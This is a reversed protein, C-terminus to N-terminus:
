TVYPRLNYFLCVSNSVIQAATQEEAEPALVAPGELVEIGPTDFTGNSDAGRMVDSSLKARNVVSKTSPTEKKPSM